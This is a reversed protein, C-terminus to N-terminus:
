RDTKADDFENSILGLIDTGSAHIDEIYNRYHSNDLPGFVSEKIMESLGIITNLPTRLQHNISALFAETASLTEAKGILIDMCLYNNVVRVTKLSDRPIPIKRMRCYDVLAQHADKESIDISSKKGNSADLFKISYYFEGDVRKAEVESVSGDPVKDTRGNDCAKLIEPLDDFSFTLRRFEKTM